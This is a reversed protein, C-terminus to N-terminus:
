KETEKIATSTSPRLYAKSAEMSKDWWDDQTNLIFDWLANFREETDIHLIKIVPRNGDRLSLLPNTKLGNLFIEKDGMRITISSHTINQSVDTRSRIKM